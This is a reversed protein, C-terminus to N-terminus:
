DETIRLLLQQLVHCHRSDNLYVDGTIVVKEQCNNMLEIEVQQWDTDLM